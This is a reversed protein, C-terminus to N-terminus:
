WNVIVTLQKAIQCLTKKAKYFCGGLQILKIIESPHFFLYRILQILNINGKQDMNQIVAPPLSISLPDAIVRITLLPLQYKLAIKAIAVTEMDLAIAGSNDYLFQKDTSSQIIQNSEILYGHYIKCF